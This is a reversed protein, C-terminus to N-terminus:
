EKLFFEYIVTASAIIGVIIYMPNVLPAIIQLLFNVISSLIFLIAIFLFACAIRPRPPTSEFLKWIGLVLHFFYHRLSPTNTRRSMGNNVPLPTYNSIAKMRPLLPDTGQMAEQRPALSETVRRAKMKPFDSGQSVRPRSPLRTTVRTADTEQRQCTTSRAPHYRSRRLLRDPESYKSKRTQYGYM